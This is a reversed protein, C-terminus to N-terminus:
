KDTLKLGSVDLVKVVYGKKFTGVVTALLKGDPSLAAGKVMGSDWKWSALAKGAGADWLKIEKDGSWTLLRGDPATLLRGFPGDDRRLTVKTMVTATDLLIGEDAVYLLGKGDATFAIEGASPEHLAPFRSQLKATATEFVYWEGYAAVALSKGDPSLAMSKNMRSGDKPVAPGTMEKKTKVDWLQCLGEGKMRTVLTKGDPTFLVRYFFPHSEYGPNVSEQEKGSGAAWFHVLGDHCTSVLTKSDPSFAVADIKDPHALSAREKRTAVDWLRVTNDDACWALTKGDPSFALGCPLGNHDKLSAIEKPDDAGAASGAWPVASVLALLLLAQRLVAQQTWVSSVGKCYIQVL